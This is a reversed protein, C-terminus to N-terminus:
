IEINDILRIDGMNVVIFGMAKQNDEWKEIVSLNNADCIEFYELEMEANSNIKKAIWDKLDNVRMRRGMISTYELVSYIYPAEKRQTPTLRQNRSSMALGDSERIIDCGIIDTKINFQKCLSKVILLQQYDKKGFYAKDPTIIDLLKKVITAVGNFHGPRSKGEMVMELEGFNFNITKENKPYMESVEPIFVLDCNVSELLQIDTDLQRPYKELDNNNNFQSPNVFISCVCIDNEKKAKSILSLHGEHLAGMTPVFGISNDQKRCDVIFNKIENITKLARMIHYIFLLYNNFDGINIYKNFNCNKGVKATYYNSFM